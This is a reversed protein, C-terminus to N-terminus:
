IKLKQEIKLKLMELSEKKLQLEELHQLNQKNLTKEIRNKITKALNQEHINAKKSELYQVVELAKFADKRVQMVKEIKRDLLLVKYELEKFEKQLWENVKKKETEIISNSYESISKNKHLTTLIEALKEKALLPIDRRGIEYMSLQGRTTELLMALEEQTIGGLINRLTESKKMEFIKNCNLNFYKQRLLKQQLNKIFLFNAVINM